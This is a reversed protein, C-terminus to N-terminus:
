GSVVIKGDVAKYSLGAADCVRGLAYKLSTKAFFADVRYAPVSRDVEIKVGAQKGFAAFVDALPAKTLRTTIKRSYTAAAITAPKPGAIKKAVVVPVPGPKLSVMLVGDKETATLGAQALVIDLAKAYPMADLKVYLKGKVAAHLAYPKQAQAFLTALVERVDEGRADLSVRLPTAQGFALCPLLLAAALISRM